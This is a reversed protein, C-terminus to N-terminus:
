FRISMALKYQAPASYYGVNHLSTIYKEDTLNDANVCIM